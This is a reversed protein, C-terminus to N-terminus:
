AMVKIVSCHCPHIVTHHSTWNCRIWNGFQCTVHKNKPMMICLVKFSYNLCKLGLPQKAESLLCFTQSHGTMNLAEALPRDSTLSHNSLFIFKSWFRSQMVSKSLSFTGVPTFWLCSVSVRKLTVSKHWSPKRSGQKSCGRNKLSIYLFVLLFFMDWLLIVESGFNSKMWRECRASDVDEVPM